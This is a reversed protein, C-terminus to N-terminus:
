APTNPTIKVDNSVGAKKEQTGLYAHGIILGSLSVLVAQTLGTKVSLYGFLVMALYSIVKKSKNDVLGKLWTLLPQETTTKKNRFIDNFLLVLLVTIFGFLLYATLYTFISQNIIHNMTLNTLTEM